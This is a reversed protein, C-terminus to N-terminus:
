AAASKAATRRKARGDVISAGIRALFSKIEEDPIADLIAVGGLLNLERAIFQIRKGFSEESLWDQNDHLFELLAVRVGRCKGMARELVAVQIDQRLFLTNTLEYPDARKEDRTLYASWWLRSIGNRSLAAFSNGEYLYRRTVLSGSDAPWRSHMYDKFVCHTLHGWLRLEMAVAPTLQHLWNFVRKANEADDAPKDSEILKPPPEVVFKSDHVYKKGACLGGLWGMDAGYKSYNADATQQLRTVFDRSFFQLKM